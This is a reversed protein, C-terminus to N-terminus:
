VFNELRHSLLKNEGIQKSVNSILREQFAIIPRDTIKCKKEQRREADIKENKAIM